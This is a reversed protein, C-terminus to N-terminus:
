REGWRLGQGAQGKAGCVRVSVRVGCAEDSSHALGVGPLSQYREAATRGRRRGGKRHLNRGPREQEAGKGSTEVHALAGPLIARSRGKVTRQQRRIWAFGEAEEVIYIEPHLRMGREEGQRRKLGM